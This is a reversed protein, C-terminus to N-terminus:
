KFASFESVALLVALRARHQHQHTTRAVICGQMSSVRWFKPLVGFELRDFHEPVAHTCTHQSDEDAHTYDRIRLLARATAMTWCTLKHMSHVDGKGPQQSHNPVQNYSATFHDICATSFTSNFWPTHHEGQCALMQGKAGSGYGKPHNSSAALAYHALSHLLRAKAALM